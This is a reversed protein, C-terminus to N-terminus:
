IRLLCPSLYPSVLPLYAYILRPPPFIGPLPSRPVVLAHIRALPVRQLSTPASLYTSTAVRSTALNDRLHLCVCVAPSTAWSGVFCTEGTRFGRTGTGATASSSDNTFPQVSSMALSSDLCKSYSLLHASSPLFCLLDPSFCGFNWDTDPLSVSHPFFSLCWGYDLRGARGSGSPRIPSHRASPHSTLLPPATRRSAYSPKYGTEGLVAGHAASAGAGLGGSNATAFSAPLPQVGAINIFAYSSATPTLSICHAPPWGTVLGWSFFSTPPVTANSHRQPTITETPM